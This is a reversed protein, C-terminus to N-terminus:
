KPQVPGNDVGPNTPLESVGVDVLGAGADDSRWNSNNDSGPPRGADVQSPWPAVIPREYEPAPLTSRPVDGGCGLLGISVNLLAVVVARVFCGVKVM